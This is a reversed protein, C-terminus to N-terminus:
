LDLIFQKIREFASNNFDFYGKLAAEGLRRDPKSRTALWAHIKAKSLASPLQSTCDYVCQLYQDICRAEYQSISSLCLDELMGPGSSNPLILISTKLEGTRRPWM